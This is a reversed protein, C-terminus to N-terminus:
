KHIVIKMTDGAQVKRAIDLGKTVQGFVTHKGNLYPQDEDTVIFFQSGNTNPGSNAMALAGVNVPLSKLSYNYVYGNSEYSKILNDVVGLSKPNIEDEFTYGPGGTGVAPDNTRSLPDGGQIVFGAVVRHFKLGDYFGSLSLKIFNAVTKPAVKPYLTVDISGKPTVITALVKDQQMLTSLEDTKITPAPSAMSNTSMSPSTSGTASPAPQESILPTPSVSALDIVSQKTSESIAIIAIAIVIAVGLIIYPLHKM